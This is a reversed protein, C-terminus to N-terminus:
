KITLLMQVHPIGDELFEDSTQVFGQKEYLSKAYTQAELRIADAGFCEKAIRIGEKLIRSGYGVRRKVAIVRGIAAEEFVVGQPMVRLYAMIQGDEELWLHLAAKDLDDIDQYVCHQEVVFVACRLKYIEFLEKVSLEDFSKVFLSM